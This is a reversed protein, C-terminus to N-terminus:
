RHFGPPKRQANSHKGFHAFFQLLPAGRWWSQFMEGSLANCTDAMLMPKVPHCVSVTYLVTTSIDIM